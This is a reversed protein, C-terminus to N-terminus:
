QEGLESVDGDGPVDQIKTVERTSQEIYRCLESDAVLTRSGSKLFRLKGRRNENRLHGQSVGLLAAAEKLSYALRRIPVEGNEEM